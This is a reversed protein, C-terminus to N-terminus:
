LTWVDEDEAAREGIAFWSVALRGIRTDSWTRATVIFRAADVESVSLDLRLNSKADGDIMRISVQVSPVGSFPRHFPVSAAVERRGDGCWMPGRTEVHDFLLLSDQEWAVMAAQGVSRGVM